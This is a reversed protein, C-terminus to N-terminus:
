AQFPRLLGSLISQERRQLCPELAVRFESREDPQLNDKRWVPSQSSAAEASEIAVGYSSSPDVASRPQLVVVLIEDQPGIRAADRESASSREREELAQLHVVSAVQPEPLNNLIWTSFSAVGVAAILLAALAALSSPRAPGAPAAPQPSEAPVSPTSLLEVFQDWAESVHQDSIPPCQQGAGIEPALQMVVHSCDPCFSIHDQVRDSQQPTLTRAHYAALDDPSPHIRLEEQRAAAMLRTAKRLALGTTADEV